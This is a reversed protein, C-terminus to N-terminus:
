HILSEVKLPSIKLMLLREEIVRYPLAMKLKMLSVVHNQMNGRMVPLGTSQEILASMQSLTFTLDRIINSECNDFSEACDGGQLLFAEGKAVLHLLSKFERIESALILPPSKQLKEQCYNLATIDPYEPLQEAPFSKWSSPHWFLAEINHPLLKKMQIDYKNQQGTLVDLDYTNLM